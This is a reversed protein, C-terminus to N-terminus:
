TSQPPVRVPRAARRKPAASSPDVDTLGRVAPDYHGNRRFTGDVAEIPHTLLAGNVVLLPMRRRDYLCLGIAPSTSFLMRLLAEYEILSEGGDGVSLAWSMEAAARFGNFGDNLAEEIAASFVRLTQEPDFEGHAAYTASSDLLMLAKRQSEAEVDVGRRELAVRVAAVEDGSPVYWCREGQGLGEILFDAVEAALHEDTDYLSCVHDGPRLRM